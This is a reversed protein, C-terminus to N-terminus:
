VSQSDIEALLTPNMGFIKCLNIAETPIAANSDVKLLEYNIFNALSDATAGELGDYSFSATQYVAQANEQVNGYHTSILSTSEQRALYSVIGRVIKAGEAPNTTRAPEDLAVFLKKGPLCNAAENIQMIEMGFSSLFDDGTGEEIFFVDDFLPLEAMEAFVFFGMNALLVNLLVTKITLSKGGMNAGVLVTAGPALDISTKTFARGKKELEAQTKPNWMNVLRINTPSIKPITADTQKALIAKALAFDLLGINETNSMFSPVFPRLKSTLDNLAMQEHRDEEAVVEARKKVLEDTMGHKDILAEIQAKKQRTARLAPYNDDHISFAAVRQKKSDLIDLADEMETFRIGELRLEIKLGIIKELGLLFRKVEFFEVESLCSHELKKVAGRINKFNSLLDQIKAVQSPHLAMLWSINQFSAILDINESYCRLACADFFAARIERIKNVGYYSFCELKEVIFGFGIGDYLRKSLM